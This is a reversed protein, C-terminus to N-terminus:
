LTRQEQGRGRASVFAVVLANVGVVQVWFRVWRPARCARLSTHSTGNYYPWALPAMCCFIHLASSRVAQLTAPGPPLSTVAQFLSAPIFIFSDYVFRWM